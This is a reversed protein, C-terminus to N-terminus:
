FLITGHLHRTGYYRGRPYQAAILHRNMPGVFRVVSGCVREIMVGEAKLLRSLIWETYRSYRFLGRYLLYRHVIHQHEIYHFVQVSWDRRRLVFEWRENLPQCCNMFSSRSVSFQQGFSNENVEALVWVKIRVIRKQFFDCFSWSVFRLTLSFSKEFEINSVSLFTILFKLLRNRRTFLLRIM